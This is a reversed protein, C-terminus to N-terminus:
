PCGDAFASLFSLVDDIDWTGFPPAFDAPIKQGSFAGLFFLVDDVDLDGEGTLDPPCGVRYAALNLRLGGDIPISDLLSLDAPDFTHLFASAFDHTYVIGRDRAATVESVFNFTSTFPYVQLSQPVGGPALAGLEVTNIPNPTRDVWYLSGDTDRSSLGDFDANYTALNSLTGDYAVSAITNSTSTNAAGPTWFSVKLEGSQADYGLGEAVGPLPAGNFSLLARHLEAGTDPDLEVLWGGTLGNRDLAFLRQGVFEMGGITTGQLPIPGLTSNAGTMPDVTVLADATPEYAFLRGFEPEPEPCDIEGQIFLDRYFLRDAETLQGDPVGPTAGSLDCRLVDGLIYRDEFYRFDENNVVGDPISYGPEGETRTTTMDARCFTRADRQDDDPEVNRFRPDRDWEARFNSRSKPIRFLEGSPQNHFLSLPDPEWRSRDPNFAYELVRNNVVSLVSGRDSVQVSTIGRGSGQDFLDGIVWRGQDEEIKVVTDNSGGGIWLGGGPAIDAVLPPAIPLGAPLQEISVGTLDDDFVLVAGLSSSLGLLRQNADDYVLTELGAGTVNIAAVTAAQYTTPDVIMKQLSGGDELYLFGDPSGAMPGQRLLRKVKRLEAAAADYAYLDGGNNGDDTVVYVTFNMAAILLDCIPDGSDPEAPPPPDEADDELIEPEEIIIEGSMPGTTLSWMPQVIYFGDLLGISTDDSSTRYRDLEWRTRQFVFGTIEDVAMATFSSTTTETSKFTSQTTQANTDGGPDRYGIIPTSGCADYVYQLATVHGGDREWAQLDENFKHWGIGVCVLGGLAMTDHMMKPTPYVGAFAQQFSVTFLGPATDNIHAWLGPIMGGTTGDVADTDMLDGMDRIAETVFEYEDDSQWDRPGSLVQPQGNNAIYAMWDTASTPACYMRGQNPLGARGDGSARRQDFDPVDLRHIDCNQAAAMGAACSMAAAHTLLAKM